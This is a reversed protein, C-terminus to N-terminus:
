QSGAVADVRTFRVDQDYPYDRLGAGPRAPDSRWYQRVQSIRGDRFEYHESGRVAVPEEGSRDVMTWESAAHAGDGLFTDVHWTAGKKDAYVRAFFRGIEVAGRVPRHNTDYVVADDVFSAIVAETDGRSCAAFYDLVLDHPNVPM